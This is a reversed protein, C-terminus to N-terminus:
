KSSTGHMIVHCVPTFASSCRLSQLRINFYCTLWNPADAHTIHYSLVWNVTFRLPHAHCNTNGRDTQLNFRHLVKTNFAFAHFSSCFCLFLFDTIFHSISPLRAFVKSAKHDKKEKPEKLSMCSNKQVWNRNIKKWTSWLSETNPVSM